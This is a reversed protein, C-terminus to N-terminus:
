GSSQSFDGCFDGKHYGEEVRALCSYSFRGRQLSRRRPFNINWGLGGVWAPKHECRGIAHHQCSQALPSEGDEVSFVCTTTQARGVLTSNTPEPISGLMGKVWCGRSGLSAAPTPGPVRLMQETQARHSPLKLGGQLLLRGGCGGGSGSAQPLPRVTPSVKVRVWSFLNHSDSGWKQWLRTWPAASCLWIYM